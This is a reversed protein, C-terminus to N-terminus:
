PTPAEVWRDFVADGGFRFGVQYGFVVDSLQFMPLACRGDPDVSVHIYTNVEADVHSRFRCVLSMETDARDRVVLDTGELRAEVLPLVPLDRAAENLLAEFREVVDELQVGCRDTLGVWLALGAIDQGGIAGIERLLCSRIGPPGVQDLAEQFVIGLPYPQAIDRERVWQTDEVLLDFAVPDLLHIAAALPPVTTTKEMRAAVWSALGEEFFRTHDRQRWASPGSVAFSHAHVLEHAVVDREAKPELRIKGGTFVGAHNAQAGLFELDLQVPDPNGVERGIQASLAELDATALAVSDASQARYLVRFNETTDVKMSAMLEPSQLLLGLASVAAVAFLFLSSCGIAGYRLVGTTLSGRRTLADGPGLFLLGAVVTAFMPLVLWVIVPAVAHTAVGDIFELGGFSGTGMAYARVPPVIVAIIAGGILGFVVLGWGLAGVWSLLLGLGIGAAAGVSLLAHAFVIELYPAAEPAGPSLWSSGLDWTLSLLLTAVSPLSAAIVKTVFVQWRRVPLGDLFEIHRSTFEPGLMAHGCAFALLFVTLIASDGGTVRESVEGLTLSSGLFQTVGFLTVLGVMGLWHPLLARSEKVLLAIWVRVAGM